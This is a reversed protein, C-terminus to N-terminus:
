TGHSPLDLESYSADQMRLIAGIQQLKFPTLNDTKVISAAIRCLKSEESQFDLQSGAGPLASLKTNLWLGISRSVPISGAVNLKPLQREAV